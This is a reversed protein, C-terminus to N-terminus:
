KDAGKHTKTRLWEASKDLKEAVSEIDAAAQQVEGTDLLRETIQRLAIATTVVEVRHRQRAVFEFDDLVGPPDSPM